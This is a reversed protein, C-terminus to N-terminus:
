VIAIERLGFMDNRLDFRSKRSWERAYSGKKPHIIGM